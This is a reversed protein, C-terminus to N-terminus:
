PRGGSRHAALARDVFAGASGLYGAPDLLGAVEEPSRRGELHRALVDALDGGSDVAQACAAKVLEHARMRGLEPALATTVREALLLGGTLDLNARMRAADVRLREVSAGLWAVASGTARLLETLPLWEAHWSGAARQHEQVMAGLLTGVLGPAREACALASVAAVPNRKHPLTSSGGSGPGGQESVEGVETQALLTVDRAAKGVAGCMGGLAGALEAVRGRDTHWPLVPEALGLERAYAAVVDPGSDGLSALTGAAGGLQAALRGEAVEALRAAAGDLAHLWGAAVVGFTTPLAQQLLTRGAMATDRHAGALDALGDTLAAADALVAACARRSVLMAATDMIDQSTAGKHVHRAADGSVAATLEKVLPIVPNGGGAAAAGIRDPDFRGPVCAAAIAEADGRGILGVSAQARALAAEADLLARLWAADGVEAAAAGRAFVGGFLGGAEQTM